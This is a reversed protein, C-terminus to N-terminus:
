ERTFLLNILYLIVDEGWSIDPSPEGENVTAPLPDGRRAGGTKDFLTLLATLIGEVPRDCETDESARAYRELAVAFLVAELCPSTECPIGLANDARLLIPMKDTRYDCSPAFFAKVRALHEKANMLYYENGTLLYADSLLTLADCVAYPSFVKKDDYKNGGAIVADAARILQDSLEKAVTEKGEQRLSSIVRFTPAMASFFGDNLLSSLVMASEMLCVVDGRYRYEEYKLLSFAICAMRDKKRDAIVSAFNREKDYFSLTEDVVPSLEKRGRLVESLLFLLPMATTDALTKGKPLVPQGLAPDYARFGRKGDELSLVHLIHDIRREATDRPLVFCRLFHRGEGDSLSLVHEGEGQPTFHCEGDTFPIRIDECVLEKARESRIRVPEGERVVLSDATVSFFGYAKAKEVFEKEDRHYFLLFEWEYTENPDLTLAPLDLSVDGMDARLSNTETRYSTCEGKTMLLSVAGPEGSIRANYIYTAGETHVFSRVRRRLTVSPIDFTDNFPFYVGLEGAEVSVQKKGENRFLYSFRVAGDHEDVTVMATIDSFYLFKARFCAPSSFDKESLFQNGFPLGFSKGKAFNLRSADDRIWIRESAFTEEVFHLELGGGRFVKM